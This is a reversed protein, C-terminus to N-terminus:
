FALQAIKEARLRLALKHEIGGDVSVRGAKLLEPPQNKKEGFLEVCGGVRQRRQHLAFELLGNQYREQAGVTMGEAIEQLPFRVFRQGRM